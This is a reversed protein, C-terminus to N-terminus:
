PSPFFAPASHQAKLIGSMFSAWHAFAPGPPPPAQARDGEEQSSSPLRIREVVEPDGEAAAEVAVDTSQWQELLGARAHVPRGPAPGRRPTMVCFARPRGRSM